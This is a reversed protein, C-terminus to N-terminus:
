RYTGKVRGWTVPAVPVPAEGRVDLVFDGCSTGWGDVVIYYNVGSSLYLSEILSKHDGNICGWFDDNCAILHETDDAYVYIKTDYWSQCLDLDVITDVIPTYVYVVDKATSGTYPCEEDYDNINGCTNGTDSYPLEPIVSATEITEGGTAAAFGPLFWWIIIVLRRALAM